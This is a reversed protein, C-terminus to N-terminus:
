ICTGARDATSGIASPLLKHIAYNNIVLHVDLDAPVAAEIQGLFKRFEVGCCKGIVRGTAIDLATFLSTTGHRKYDYSCRAPQGSRMPLM